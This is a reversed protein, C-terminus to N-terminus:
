ITEKIKAKAMEAAKRIPRRNANPQIPLPLQKKEDSDNDINKSVEIPFLLKLPRRIVRGTHLKVKVSRVNDDASTVLDVIKGM